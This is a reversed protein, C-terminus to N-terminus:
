GDRGCGCPSFPWCCLRALLTCLWRGLTPSEAGNWTHYNEIVAEMPSWVNVGQQWSVAHGRQAQVQPGTLQLSPKATSLTRQLDLDGVLDSQQPLIWEKLSYSQLKGWLPPGWLLTWWGWGGSSGIGPGRSRSSNTLLWRRMDQSGAPPDLM